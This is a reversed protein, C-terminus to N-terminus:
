AGSEDSVAVMGADVAENGKAHNATRGEERESGPERVWDDAQHDRDHDELDRPVGPAGDRSRLRAIKM